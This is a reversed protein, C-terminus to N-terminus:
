GMEVKRDFNKFTTFAFLFEYLWKGWKLKETLIKLVMCKGCKLKRSWM